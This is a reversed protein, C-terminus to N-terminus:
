PAQLADSPGYSVAKRTTTFNLTFSQQGKNGENDRGRHRQAASLCSLDCCCESSVARCDCCCCSMASILPAFPLISLSSPSLLLSSSAAWCSRLAASAAIASTLSLSDWHPLSLPSSCSSSLRASSSLSATLRLPSTDKCAASACLFSTLAIFFLLYSVARLLLPLCHPPATAQKHRGRSDCVCSTPFKCM